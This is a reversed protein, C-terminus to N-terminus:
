PDVPEPPESPQLRARCTTCEVVRHPCTATIDLAQEVAARLLQSLNLDAARAAEAVNKPLNVSLRTSV